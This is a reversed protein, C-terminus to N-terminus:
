KLAAEAAARRAEALQMEAAIRLKQMETFVLREMEAQATGPTYEIQQRLIRDNISRMDSDQQQALRDAQAREAEREAIAAMSESADASRESNKALIDEYGTLIGFGEAIQRAMSGFGDIIPAGLEVAIGELLSNTIISANKMDRFGTITAARVEIERQARAKDAALTQKYNNETPNRINKEVQDQFQKATLYVEAGPLEGQVSMRIAADMGGVSDEITQAVRDAMDALAEPSGGGAMLTNFQDMIDTFGFGALGQQSQAMSMLSNTFTVGLEAAMQNQGAMSAFMESLAGAEVGFKTMADTDLKNVANVISEASRGFVTATSDITKALSEQQATTMTTNKELSVFLDLAAKTNQGTMKMNAALNVQEKNFQEFGAARMETAVRMQDDISATNKLLAAKNEKFFDIQNTGLVLLRENIELNREAYKATVNVVAKLGDVALSLAALGPHLKTIGGNLKGIAGVADGLAKTMSM